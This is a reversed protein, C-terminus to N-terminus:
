TMPEASTLNHVERVFQPLDLPKILHHLVGMTAFRAPDPNATIVLAHEASSSELLTLGDGDPLGVDLVVADFHHLDLLAHAEALSGAQEVQVGRDELSMALYCRLREEDEVILVRRDEFM